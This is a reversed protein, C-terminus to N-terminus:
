DPWYWAPEDLMKQGVIGTLGLNKELVICNCEPAEQLPLAIYRGVAGCGVAASALGGSPARHCLQRRGAARHAAPRRPVCRQRCLDSKGSDNPTILNLRGPAIVLKNISRYNAVALTKLM